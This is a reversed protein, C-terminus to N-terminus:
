QDTKSTKLREGESSVSKRAPPPDSSMSYVFRDDRDIAMPSHNAIKNHQVRYSRMASIRQPGGNSLPHVIDINNTMAM